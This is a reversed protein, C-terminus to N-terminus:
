TTGRRSRKRNYKDPIYKEYYTLGQISKNKPFYLCVQKTKANSNETVAAMNVKETFTLLRQKLQFNVLHYQKTNHQFIVALYHIPHLSVLTAKINKTINLWKLNTSSLQANQKYVKFTHESPIYFKLVKLSITADNHFYGITELQTSLTSKAIILDELPPATYIVYINNGLTQLHLFNIVFLHRLVNYTQVQRLNLTITKLEKKSKCSLFLLYNKKYSTMLCFDDLQKLSRQKSKTIALVANRCGIYLTNSRIISGIFQNCLTKNLFLKGWTIVRQKLSLTTKMAYSNMITNKMDTELSEVCFYNTQKQLCIDTMCNEICTSSNCLLKYSHCVSLTSNCDLSLDGCVCLAKKDM